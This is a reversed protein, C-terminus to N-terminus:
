RAPPAVQAPAGPPPKTKPLIVRSLNFIPGYIAYVLGGVICGMMVLVFPELIKDIQSAIVDLDEEYDTAIEDLMENVGGTEGAM